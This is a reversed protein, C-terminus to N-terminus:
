ASSHVAQNEIEMRLKSWTEEPVNLFANVVERDFQTGSCRRIEDRAAGVSRAPRYPHESTISDFANATAVIRAGLCTQDAKLKRPYGKGDFREHHAYVIEGAEALFPVKQLMQYGRLPHEQMIAREQPSLTTPKHLIAEPIAIKGIDHLFAGRGTVSILERPLGLAQAIAISFLTVRRLHGALPTDKMELAHGLTEVTIDYSRELNVLAAHLQETRAKVLSELNKVYAENETTLRANNLELEQVRKRLDDLESM